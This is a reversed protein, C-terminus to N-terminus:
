LNSILALMKLACADEVKSKNCNYKQSDDSQNSQLKRRWVGHHKVILPFFHCKRGSRCIGKFLLSAQLLMLDVTVSTYSAFLGGVHMNEPPPFFCSSGSSIWGSPNLTLIRLVVYTIHVCHCFWM